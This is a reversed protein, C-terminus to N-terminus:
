KHTLCENLFSDRLLIDIHHGNPYHHNFTTVDHKPFESRNQFYFQNSEMALTFDEPKMMQTILDRGIERSGPLTYYGKIGEERDQQTVFTDWILQPTVSFYDAYPLKTKEGYLISPGSM